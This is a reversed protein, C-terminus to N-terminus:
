KTRYHRAFVEGRMVWNHTVVASGLNKDWMHTNRHNRDSTEGQTLM